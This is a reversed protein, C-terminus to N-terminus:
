ILPFMKPFENILFLFDDYKLYHAKKNAYKVM